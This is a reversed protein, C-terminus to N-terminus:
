IGVAKDTSRPLDKNSEKHLLNCSVEIDKMRAEGIINAFPVDAADRGTGIRVFGTRTIRDTPDFLFWQGDLWVEFLAHFDPPDLDHSYGSVFRAPINLARSLAIGLHAFDRCVGVRETVTDVATTLTDTTQGIFDVNTYIWECIAKVQQFGQKVTSFERFALRKLRDSQCYRSPVIYELLELPLNEPKTPSINDSNVIDFSVSTSGEYHVSLNSTDSAFRHCKNGLTESTYDDVSSGDSTTFEEHILTQNFSNCAALNMIFTTREEVSYELRSEFSLKM